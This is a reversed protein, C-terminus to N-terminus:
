AKEISADLLDGLCLLLDVPESELNGVLSDDDAIAIAQM